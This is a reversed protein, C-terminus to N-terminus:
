GILFSFLSFSLAMRRFWTTAPLTPEAAAIFIVDAFVAPPLSRLSSALLPLRWTPLAVTVLASMAADLPVMWTMSVTSRGSHRASRSLSFVHFWFSGGQRRAHTDFRRRVKRRAETLKAHEDEGVVAVVTLVERNDTAVDPAGVFHGHAEVRLAERAVRQAREPAVAALLELEPERQHARLRPPDHEIQALFPRPMPSVLLIRAYASWCSRPSSVTSALM